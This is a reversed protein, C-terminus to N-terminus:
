LFHFLDFIPTKQAGGAGGNTLIDLNKNFGYLAVEKLNYQDFKFLFQDATRQIMRSPRNRRNKVRPLGRLTSFFFGESPTGEELVEAFFIRPVEAVLPEHTIAFIFANTPFFVLFIADCLAASTGNERFVGKGYKLRRQLLFLRLSTHVTVNLVSAIIKLKIVTPRNYPM